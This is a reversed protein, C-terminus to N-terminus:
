VQFSQATYIHSNDQWKGSMIVEKKMDKNIHM